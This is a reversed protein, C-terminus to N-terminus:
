KLEALHLTVVTAAANEDASFGVLTQAKNGSNFVPILPLGHVRSMLAFFQQTIEPRLMGPVGIRVNGFDPGKLTLSHAATRSSMGIVAYDTNAKLLDSDTSIAEESYQGTAVSAVSSEVTTIKNTKGDLQSASITRMSIGPFDQYFMLIADQEIDAAVNSGAITNAIVEQPEFKHTLELPM